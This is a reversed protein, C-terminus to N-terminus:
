GDMDPMLIDSIVILAKQKKLLELAEKASYAATVPHGLPKISLEIQKAQTNSDEVILIYDAKKM